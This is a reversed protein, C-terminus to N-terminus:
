VLHAVLVIALTPAKAPVCANKCDDNRQALVQCFCIFHLSDEYTARLTCFQQLFSGAVKETSIFNIFRSRHDICARACTSLFYPCLGACDCTVLTGSVMQGCKRHTDYILQQIYHVGRELSDVDTPSTSNNTSAHVGSDTTAESLKPVTYSNATTSETSSSHPSSQAFFHSSQVPHLEHKCM